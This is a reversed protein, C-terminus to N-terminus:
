EHAKPNFGYRWKNLRGDSSEINYIDMIEEMYSLGRDMEDSDMQGLQKASTELTLWFEKVTLSKAPTEILKDLASNIVRQAKIRTAEDPAGFYLLTLDKVFKKQIKLEHLAAKVNSGNLLMKSETNNCGQILLLIFLVKIFKM